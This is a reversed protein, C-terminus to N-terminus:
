CDIDANSDGWGSCGAFDMQVLSDLTLFNAVAEWTMAIATCFSNGLACTVMPGQNFVTKSRSQCDSGNVSFSRFAM